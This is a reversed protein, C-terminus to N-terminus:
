SCVANIFVIILCLIIHLMYNFAISSPLLSALVTPSLNYVWGFFTLERRVSKSIVRSINSWFQENLIYHMCFKRVRMKLPWETCNIMIKMILVDTKNLLISPFFHCKQEILSGSGPAGNHAYQKTITNWHWANFHWLGISLFHLKKKRRASSKMFETIEWYLPSYPCHSVVWFTRLIIRCANCELHVIKIFIEWTIDFLTQCSSVKKTSHLQLLFLISSFLFVSSSYRCILRHPAFQIAFTVHLSYLITRQKM